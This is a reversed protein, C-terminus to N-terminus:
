FEAKACSLMFIGAPTIQLREERWTQCIDNICKWTNFRKLGSSDMLSITKHNIATAVTWHELRGSTGIIISSNESKLHQQLTKILVTKTVRRLRHFPKRTYLQFGRHELLWLAAAKLLRTLKPITLGDIMAEGLIGSSEMYEILTQHLDTCETQCMPAIDKM